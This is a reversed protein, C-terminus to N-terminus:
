SLVALSTLHGTPPSGDALRVPVLSQARAIVPGAGAAPVEVLRPCDTLTSRRCKAHKHTRLGINRRNAARFLIDAVGDRAVALM